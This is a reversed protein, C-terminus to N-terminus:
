EGCLGDEMEQKTLPKKTQGKAKPEYYKHKIADQMYAIYNDPRKKLGQIYRDAKYIEMVNNNAAKALLRAESIKIPESVAKQMIADLLDDENEYVELFESEEEMRELKEKEITVYFTVGQVKGGLGGRAKEYTLTMETTENIEKVAVDLCKKRFTYWDSYMKEEATKVAKEFDPRGNAGTDMLIAKTKALEANVVGMELKLEPLSMDIKYKNNDTISKWKPTYCKSKIIEYLRLSYVSKFNLMTTLSLITYHSELSKLYKKMEPAFRLSFKGNDYEAKTILPVYMFRNNEPDSIGITRGGTMRQAIKLLSSYLSNGSLNLIKKLDTGHVSVILSGEKDEYANEIKNLAIALVKNENITSKYLSSILINSKKYDDTYTLDTIESQDINEIFEINDMVWNTRNNVM